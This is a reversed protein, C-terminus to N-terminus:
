ISESVPEKSKLFAPVVVCAFSSIGVAGFILLLPLYYTWNKESDYAMVGIIFGSLLLGFFSLLVYKMRQWM